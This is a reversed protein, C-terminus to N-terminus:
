VTTPHPLLDLINLNQKNSLNQGVDLVTQAFNIFGDGSILEFARSDLSVLEVAANTIKEKM